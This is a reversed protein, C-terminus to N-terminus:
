EAYMRGPGRSKPPKPMVNTKGGAICRGYEAGNGNDAQGRGNHRNRRQSACVGGKKRKICVYDRKAFVQRAVICLFLLICFYYIPFTMQPNPTLTLQARTMLIDVPQTFLPLKLYLVLRVPAIWPSTKNKKRTNQCPEPLHQTCPPQEYIDYTYQPSRIIITMMM